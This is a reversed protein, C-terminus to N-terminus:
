DVDYNDEYDQGEYEIDICSRFCTHVRWQRGESVSDPFDSNDNVYDYCDDFEDSTNKKYLYFEDYLNGNYEIELSIKDGCSLEPFV